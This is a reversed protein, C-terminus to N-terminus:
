HVSPGPPPTRFYGQRAMPQTRTLPASGRAGGLSRHTHYDITGNLLGSTSAPAHATRSRCAWHWKGILATKLGAVHSGAMTPLEPWGVEDDNDRLVGTVGTRDPRLGTMLSARAPSCVPSGSYHDTLRAGEAALRDLHPTAHVASGYCGLDGYGLDDALIVIANASRRAAPVGRAASGAAMRAAIV